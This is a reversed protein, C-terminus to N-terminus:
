HTRTTGALLDLSFRAITAREAAVHRLEPTPQAELLEFPLASVGTFLMLQVAHARRVVDLGVDCGEVRLGKLYASLCVQEIRPLDAAARYGLQVDGVVLQGLDFAIPRPGWFGFDILVLDDDDPRSLLNNPCADGHGVLLPAARLEAILEDVGDAARLLRDRLERDFAEAILPHRWLGDDRLMPLVHLRLRGIAYQGVHWGSDDLARGAARGVPQRGVPRAPPGGPRVTRRDVSNAPWRCRRAVALGVRRRHRVRRVLAAHDPRRPAPRGSRIPLREARHALARRSCRCVRYEAPVQAFFPHRAWSQVHKVFFRFPRHVDGVRAQGDVWWRGATTIAPLAYDVARAEVSVIEVQDAPEGLQAAVMALLREDDVDARGLVERCGM